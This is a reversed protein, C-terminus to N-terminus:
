DASPRSFAASGPCHDPAEIKVSTLETISNKKDELTYDPYTLATSQIAAVERAIGIVSLCDPRNPTLDIEFATDALDLADELKTGINLSAELKMIGSADPGLCIEAESCLMGESSQGRIVTKELVSGDPFVTGPLALPALMGAEVNPAGCVVSFQRDSASVRCLKLKDANPHPNIEDIRGVFVTSLYAYRNTISEVELGAMTLAEALDVPDLEIPTYDNLWSISVKM